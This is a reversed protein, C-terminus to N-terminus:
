QYICWGVFSFNQFMAYITCCSKIHMDVTCMNTWMLKDQHYPLELISDFNISFMYTGMFINSRSQNSWSNWRDCSHLRCHEEQKFIFVLIGQSMDPATTYTYIVRLPIKWIIIVVLCYDIQQEYTNPDQCIIQYVPVNSCHRRRIRQLNTAWMENIWLVSAAFPRRATHSSIGCLCFKSCVCFFLSWM